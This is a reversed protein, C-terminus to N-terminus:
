LNELSRSDFKAVPKMEAKNGFSLFYIQFLHNSLTSFIDLSIQIQINRQSARDEIPDGRRLHTNFYFVSLHRKWRCRRHFFTKWLFAQLGVNM